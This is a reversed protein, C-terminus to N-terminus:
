SIELISAVMGAVVKGYKEEVLSMIMNRMFLDYAKTLDLFISIIRRWSVRSLMCTAAGQSSTKKEFGFQELARQVDELKVKVGM